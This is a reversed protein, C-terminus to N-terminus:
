VHPPNWTHLSVPPNWTHLSVPPNWTHLSTPGLDVAVSQGSWTPTSQKTLMAEFLKTFTKM